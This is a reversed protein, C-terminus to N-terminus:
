QLGSARGVAMSLTLTSFAFASLAFLAV